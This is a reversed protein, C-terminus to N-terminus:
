VGGVRKLQVRGTLVLFLGLAIVLAFGFAWPSNISELVPKAYTLMGGLVGAGTVVGGIVVPDKKLDAGDPKHEVEAPEAKRAEARAAKISDLFARHYGAILRAKDTGNVIRRAGEPDDATANFYKAFMHGRSFLGERMSIIAARASVDGDLMRGPKEVLDVGIERGVKRYNTEHTVQLDGRGFWGKRWYPVRVQPLRGAAWAADLRRIAQADSTAFTERVPQMRGGTEHFISALLYALHRDDGTGEVDWHRLLREMGEVQSKSLRGGFPARRVYDFFTPLHLDTM